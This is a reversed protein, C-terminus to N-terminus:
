LQANDEQDRSSTVQMRHEVDQENAYRPLMGKM